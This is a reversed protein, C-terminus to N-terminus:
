NTLAEGCAAYAWIVSLLTAKLRSWFFQQPQTHCSILHQKLFTVKQATIEGGM